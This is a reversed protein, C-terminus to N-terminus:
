HTAFIVDVSYNTSQYSATPFAASSAYQYSGNPLPSGDALAYLPPSNVTSALGNRTVSYHGNPAFYSAVYVTGASVAVPASFLVQQWGSSTENIFTAQALLAGSATWLSGVHTGTNGSAKYFRIGQIFGNTDTTFAVGLNVSSGDGSDVTAPTATGFMNCPCSPATAVPTAPNSPSSAPGTGAGNIAAVTFTYTTGNSLGTVTTSTAPPSGTVTKSPQANSGVYPTVVYSSIASGGNSAPTTWSVSASANGAMATVGTPASPVTVDTPTIANSPSSAPGTGVANIAAVSFTYTMGNSLGTINASTAPPSGSVTTSPQATSGIFPTVTYSTIASGGNSAPATWSVSASANGATATVWTPASPPGTPTVANSPASAPGIGVANTAAVTFTYTTGATLGAITTQVPPPAGSVTTAPQATSGVYPTVTYSTIASGGNNAPATWSVTASGPGATATV